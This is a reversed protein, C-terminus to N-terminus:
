EIPFQRHCTMVHSITRLVIGLVHKALKVHCLGMCTHQDGLLDGRMAARHASTKAQNSPQQDSVIVALKNIDSSKSCISTLPGCKADLDVSVVFMHKRSTPLRDTGNNCREPVRRRNCTRALRRGACFHYRGTTSRAVPLKRHPVVVAKAADRM